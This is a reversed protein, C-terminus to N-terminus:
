RLVPDDRRQERDAPRPPLPSPPLLRPRLRGQALQGRRRRVPQRGRQPGDAGAARPQRRRQVRDSLQAPRRQVRRRRRSRRPGGEGGQVGHAAEPRADPSAAVLAARDAFLPAAADARGSCQHGYQYECDSAKVARMAALKVPDGLRELEGIKLTGIGHEASISGGYRVTLDNVARTIAPGAAGVGEAPPRANFHVNGDGLHGFALVGFGPWGRAVAATAEEIFAPMRDVPVSVDHKVSKGDLREAEPLAERIAWLAARQAESAAVTADIAEGAEIADALAAELADALPDGIRASAAEALVYWPHVGALPDRTGAIHRFVLDLGLRPMLEFSDVLDGTAARLRSLLRLAEAPGAVAVFATAVSAPKPVLKLAVATVIGLTGEAGILLQKVDYGTNDKRLSSLQDLLSGDPLVAEMGLVLARMTGHRLVQVGGANTSVLGGITASGKAALSLPFMRGAADAAQQVTELIAGAEAVLSFDHRAVGRIRNMRRLSLLVARGDAEPVGGGVLGTNGGQPVLAIRHAAAVRVVAAVEAASSPMAMLPTAGAKQGRWDTLHPALRGPDDTWGAPGLAAKMAALADKMGCAYASGARPVFRAMLRERRM